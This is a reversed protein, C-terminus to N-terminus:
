LVSSAPLRYSSSSNVNKGRGRWGRREKRGQKQQQSLPFSPPPSHLTHCSYMIPPRFHKCRVKLKQLQLLSTTLDAHWGFNSLLSEIPDGAKPLSVTPICHLSRSLNWPPCWPPITVTGFQSTQLAITHPFGPTHCRLIRTSLVLNINPPKASTAENGPEGGARRRWRRRTPPSGPFLAIASTNWVFTIVIGPMHCTIPNSAVCASIFPLLTLPHASRPAHM